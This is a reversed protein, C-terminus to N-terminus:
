CVAPQSDHTSDNTGCQAGAILFGRRAL